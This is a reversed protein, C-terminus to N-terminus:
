THTDSPVSKILANIHHCRYVDTTQPRFVATIYKEGISNSSPFRSKQPKGNRNPPASSMHLLEMSCFIAYFLFSSLVFSGGDGRGLRTFLCFEHWSESLCLCFSPRDKRIYTLACKCLIFMRLLSYCFLLPLFDFWFLLFSCWGFVEACLCVRKGNLM